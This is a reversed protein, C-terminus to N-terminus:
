KMGELPVETYEKLLVAEELEQRGPDSTFVYCKQTGNGVV